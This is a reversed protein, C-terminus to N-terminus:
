AAELGDTRARRHADRVQPHVPLLAGALRMVGYMYIRLSPEIARIWPLGYLERAEKPLLGVAAVAFQAWLPKLPLPMPPNLLLRMGERAGSTVALGDFSRLYADVEAVSSPVDDAPLGVLVAAKIMERVYRDADADSLGAGYTRYAALFSDVETAHVWLLLEPDDACYPRETVPDVGRIRRHIARLRKAALDAQARSGYTTTVIYDSTRGLRGWPDGKYKSHQEVAAMSRPNLAQLLLTRLGGIMLSPHAHMRWVISGPGFYGLDANDTPSIATV